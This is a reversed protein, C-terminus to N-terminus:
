LSSDVTIKKFSIDTITQGEGHRLAVEWYYDVQAPESVHLISFDDQDYFPVATHGVISEVDDLGDGIKLKNVRDMDCSSLAVPDFDLGETSHWSKHVHSVQDTGDKSAANRDDSDDCSILTVTLFLLAANKMYQSVILDLM